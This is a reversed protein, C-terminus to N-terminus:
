QADFNPLGGGPAFIACGNPNDTLFDPLGSVDDAFQKGDDSDNACRNVPNATSVTLTFRYGAANDDYYDQLSVFNFGLVNIDARLKEIIRLGATFAWDQVSAASTEATPLDLVDMNATFRLANIGDSQGSLPDDVWVCPYKTGGAGKRYTKNFIFSVILPHKRSIDYLRNIIEM